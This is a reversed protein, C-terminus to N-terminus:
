QLSAKTAAVDFLPETREELEPQIEELWLQQLPLGTM